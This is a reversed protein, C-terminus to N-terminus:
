HLPKVFVEHNKNKKDHAGHFGDLCNISGMIGSEFKKKGYVLVHLLHKTGHFPQSVKSSVIACLKVLVVSLLFLGDAPLSVEYM